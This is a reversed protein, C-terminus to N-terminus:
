KSVIVTTEGTPQVTVPKIIYGGQQVLGFQTPAKWGVRSIVYYKGAGIGKFTFRGEGDTTTLKNYKAFQPDPAGPEQNALYARYLVDTYSTAPLLSVDEGAGYKVDGGVTKMFVQGTVVADGNINLSQYEAVPFPPMDVRKSPALQNACGALGALALVLAISGLRMHDRGHVDFLFTDRHM